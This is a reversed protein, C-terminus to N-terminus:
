CKWRCAAPDDTDQEAHAHPMSSQQLETAARNCCADTDQEAHAHPLTPTACACAAPHTNQQLDKAINSSQLRSSVSTSISMYLEAPLQGVAV